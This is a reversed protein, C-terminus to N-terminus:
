YVMGSCNLSTGNWSGSSQCQIVYPEMVNAEYGSICKYMVTSPYTYKTGSKIASIGNGPDKCDKVLIYDAM